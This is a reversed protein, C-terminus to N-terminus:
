KESPPDSGGSSFSHSTIQTDKLEYKLYPVKSGGAKRLTIIGTKFHTGNAVGKFTPTQTHVSVHPTSVKPAIQAASATATIFVPTLLSLLRKVTIVKM